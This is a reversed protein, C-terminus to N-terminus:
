LIHRVLVDALVVTQFIWYNGSSPKAVRVQIGISYKCSDTDKAKIFVQKVCFRCNALLSIETAMFIRFIPVGLTIVM